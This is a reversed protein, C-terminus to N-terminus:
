PSSTEETAANPAEPATAPSTGPLLKVTVHVIPIPLNARKWADLLESRYSVTVEPLPLQFVNRVLSDPSGDEINVSITGEDRHWRM